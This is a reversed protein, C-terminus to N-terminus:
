TGYLEDVLDLGSRAWEIETTARDIMGQYAFVKFRVIAEHQEPPSKALRHQLLPVERAKLAVVLRQWETRRQEHVAIHERLQSRAADPDGWEYYAAKLRHVDRERQPPLPEDIWRRFEKIGGDTVHYRRKKGREGRSVEESAVLKDKEMQRLEAYIQTHPAHWMYGISSEFYQFADYGTMPEASLLALLAYRM